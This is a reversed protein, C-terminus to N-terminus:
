CVGSASSHGPGLWVHAGCWAVGCPVGVVWCVQALNAAPQGSATAAGGDDNLAGDLVTELTARRESPASPAEESVVTPQLLRPLYPLTIFLLAPCPLSSLGLALLFLAGGREGRHAAAPPASAMPLATSAACCAPCLPCRLMNM